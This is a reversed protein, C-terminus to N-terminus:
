RIHRRALPTFGANIFASHPDRHNHAIGATPDGGRRDRMLRRVQHINVLRNQLICRGCGLRAVREVANAQFRYQLLGSCQRLAIQEVIEGISGLSSIFTLGASGGHQIIREFHNGGIGRRMIGRRDVIPQVAEIRVDPLRIINRPTKRSHHVRHALFQIREIRIGARQHRGGVRDIVSGREIRRFDGDVAIQSIGAQRQQGRFGKHDGVRIPVSAVVTLFEQLM